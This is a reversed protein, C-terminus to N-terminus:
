VGCCLERVLRSLERILYDSVSDACDMCLRLTGEQLVVEVLQARDQKRGCRDCRRSM